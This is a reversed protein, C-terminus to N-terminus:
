EAAPLTLFFTSGTSGDSEVWVRGGHREVITRVSSLGIGEGESSRPQLRHYLDFIREHYSPDIGSGNDQVLYCVKDQKISGSIRVLLAREASRYNIANAILNSFVQEIQAHDGMCPPLPTVQVAGGTERLRLEYEDRCTDLLQNMNLRALKIDARGIRSIELLGKLLRDMKGANGRIYRLSEDVDDTFIADIQHRAEPMLPQDMLLQRLDNCANALETSFGHISVLPSRLDHSVAYLVQEMEKGKRELEHNLREQEHQAEKRHSIDQIQVIFHLPLGKADRVLSGSLLGWIVHGDKHYYRKEMHYAPVVGDLLDKVHALHAELDDPHSIEKFTLRVLEEQAYGTIRCLSPNVQLFTGDISVLAMGIAAHQFASLFHDHSCRLEEAQEKAATIDSAIGCVATLRGTEDVHPFARDRIWRMTGDDHLLRYEMEWPPKPHAGHSKLLRERDEPVIPEMFAEPSANLHARSRGWLREYGPSVYLIRDLKPTGIWVVDEIADALMDFRSKSEHLEDQLKQRSTIDSGHVILKWPRGDQDELRWVTFEYTALRDGWQRLPLVFHGVKGEVAAALRRKLEEAHGGEPWWDGEWVPHGLLAERTRTSATTAVDNLDLVIGDLDLLALFRGSQRFVAEYPNLAAEDM